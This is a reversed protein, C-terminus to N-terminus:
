KHPHAARFEALKEQHAEKRALNNAKIKAIQAATYHPKSSGSSPSQGFLSDFISTFFSNNSSLAIRSELLDIVPRFSKRKMFSEGPGAGVACEM